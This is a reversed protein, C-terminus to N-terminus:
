PRHSYTYIPPLATTTQGAVAKEMFYPTAAAPFPILESPSEVHIAFLLAEFLCALAVAYEQASRSAESFDTAFLIKQFRVRKVTRPQPLVVQSTM